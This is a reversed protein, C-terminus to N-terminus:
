NANELNELRENFVKLRLEVSLGNWMVLFILGCLVYAIIITFWKM